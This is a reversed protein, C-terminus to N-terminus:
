WVNLNVMMHLSEINPFTEANSSENWWQPFTVNLLVEFQRFTHTCLQKM